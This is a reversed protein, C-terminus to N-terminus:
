LSAFQKAQAVGTKNEYVWTLAPSHVAAVAEGIARAKCTKAATVSALGRVDSTPCVHEAASRIRQYLVASGAASNVNLDGYNVHVQPLDAAQAATAFGAVIAARVLVQRFSHQTFTKM